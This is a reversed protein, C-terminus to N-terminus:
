VAELGESIKLDAPLPTNFAPDFMFKACNVICPNFVTMDIGNVRVSCFSFIYDIM